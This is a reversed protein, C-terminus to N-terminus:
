MRLAPPWPYRHRLRSVLGWPVHERSQPDHQDLSQNMLWDLKASTAHGSCGLVAGAQQKLPQLLFIGDRRFLSPTSSLKQLDILVPGLREM